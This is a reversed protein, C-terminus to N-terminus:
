KLEKHTFSKRGEAYDAVINGNGRVKYKYILLGELGVPGRAHIKSTSIGVEAGLGYRFGDAFRTSCNLLTSSSDVVSMFRESTVSNNTVICDTHHSGYFNIHDVAGDFDDVVKISLILDTYETEWDEDVAEKADIIKRTAEDGRLEVGRDTLEKAVSPLFTDAIDKHVLLTEVANCVAPYQCKSDVAVSVAMDLDAEKDVYVHCIGDAHGMVPIKTNDQIYKVLANSGRPIMLDVYQDLALLEKIDDRSEVLQLSNKFLPDVREMAEEFLSFLARNSNVAEKGGKLIAANGSKLCLSSIQVLADPRSEFIIGIVGIPVAIKELILDTDLERKVQVTGVPDKLSAVDKLSDIIVDIKQPNLVLRKVLVDGTNDAKALELDKSNEALIYDQKEKLLEAVIKLVESKKSDDISALRFSAQKAAKAKEITNMNRERM